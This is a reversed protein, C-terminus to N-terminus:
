RRSNLNRFKIKVAVFGIFLDLNNLAQKANEKNILVETKACLSALDVAIIFDTLAYYM